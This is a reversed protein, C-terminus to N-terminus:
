LNNIKEEFDDDLFATYFVTDETKFDDMEKWGAKIFVRRSSTNKEYIGARIAKSGRSKSVEKTMDILEGFVGLGRYKSDVAGITMQAFGPLDEIYKNSKVSGPQRFLRKWLQASFIRKPKSLLSLFFEPLCAFFMPKTFPGDCVAVLGALSDEIDAVLVYAIKSTILWRYTAKVYNQGLIMPVHDDPKFSRCHLDTIKELDNITAKRINM